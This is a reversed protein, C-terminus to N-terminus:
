KVQKLGLFLLIAPKEFIALYEVSLNPATDLLEITAFANRLLFQVGVKRVQFRLRLSTARIKNLDPPVDFVLAADFHRVSNLGSNAVFDGKQRSSGSRSM